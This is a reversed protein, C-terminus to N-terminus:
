PGAATWGPLTITRAPVPDSTGSGTFGVLTITRAPVPAFTGAASFGALTITRSTVGPLSTLARGTTGAIGSAQRGGTTSTTPTSATAITATTGAAALTPAQVISATATAGATVAPGAVAAGQVLNWSCVAQGSTGIPQSADLRTLPTTSSGTVHTSTATDQIAPFPRWESVSKSIPQPRARRGLEAAEETGTTGNATSLQGHRTFVLLRQDSQRVFIAMRVGAASGQTAWTAASRLTETPTRSGSGSVTWTGPYDQSGEPPLGGTLTWTHTEHSSYGTGTLDIDCRVSGNWIPPSQGSALSGYACIVSVVLSSFRLRPSRRLPTRM